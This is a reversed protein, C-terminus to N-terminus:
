GNLAGKSLLNDIQKRHPIWKRAILQHREIIAKKSEKGDAQQCPSRKCEYPKAEHIKCKGEDSFFVCRGHPDESFMGGPSIEITAPAIIFIDEEDEKREFWDIALYKDFFETLPMDLLNAAQEPEGPLFWGVRRMCASQCGSCACDQPYNKDPEDDTNTQM